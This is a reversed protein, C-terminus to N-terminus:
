GPPTFEVLELVEDGGAVLEERVTGVGPAYQKHEIMEPDLPTWDKTTVVDEFHGAPGDVTGGVEIIEGLDEAEGAYYEQRYAFGVTPEAPMVIGPQAGDVGAEWSGETSVVEGEEYEKTDEGLYWVNGDRDQAYWDFTDEKLEDGSYVSDRVVTAEIGMVTKREDTVIIEVREPEGDSEGEYVWRSGAIWPLYPNDIAAVFNAPDVDPQYNGGDGPDIVPTSATTAAPPSSTTGSSEGDDGGCAPVLAVALVGTTLVARHRM